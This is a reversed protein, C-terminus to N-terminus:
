GILRCRCVLHYNRPRAREVAGSVALLALKYYVNLLLELHELVEIAMSWWGHNGELGARRNALFRVIVLVGEHDLNLSM